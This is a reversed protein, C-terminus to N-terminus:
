EWYCQYRGIDMWAGAAQNMSNCLRPSDGSCQCSCSTGRNRIRTGPTMVSYNDGNATTALLKNCTSLEYEQCGSGASYRLVTTVWESIVCSGCAWRDAVMASIVCLAVVCACRSQMRHM